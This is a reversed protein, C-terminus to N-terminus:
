FPVEDDARQGLLNDRPRLRHILRAEEDLVDSAGTFRISVEVRARDYTIGPDHGEAYQGSWYGKFRRWTQFHRTLTEYLRGSSSGVYLLEHTRADRILYVGTRGKLDRVWQPYAEASAGIPRYATAGNRAFLPSRPDPVVSWSRMVATPDTRESPGGLWLEFHLHRLRQPDKPDFGIIGIAQGASVHEGSERPATTRVLLKELHTYYTAVKLPGRQGHDIVVSFGRPTKMASWVRGDSAALAPVDDPMVHRKSGNPTGAILTDSPVRAFMLDLGGHRPVGPRPSDFGDSIVPARGKWSSVPWVWRGSLPTDLRTPTSSSERSGQRSWLYAALAGGGLIWPVRSM